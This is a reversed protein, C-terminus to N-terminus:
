LLAGGRIDRAADDLWHWLYQALSRRVILHFVPAASLQVITVSAKAFLTQASHGPAFVRPHLDLTCGRALLDRAAHGSIEITTFGSSVDTVAAFLDGLASRLASELDGQAGPVTVLLWESPALWIIRVGDSEVVRNPVRPPEIGVVARVADVFAAQEPQGRLNLYGPMPCERISLATQDANSVTHLPSQAIDPNNM